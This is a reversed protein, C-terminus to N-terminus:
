WPIPTTPLPGNQAAPSATWLASIGAMRTSCMSKAETRWPIEQTEIPTLLGQQSSREPYLVIYPAQTTLLALTDNPTVTLAVVTYMYTNLPDAGDIPYNPANYNTSGFRGAVRELIGNPNIRWVIIDDSTFYVSGDPGVAMSHAPDSGTTVTTAQKGEDGRILAANNTNAPNYGAGAGTGPGDSLLPQIIGGPSIEFMGGGDFYEGPSVYVTGDSGM